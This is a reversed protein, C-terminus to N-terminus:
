LWKYQEFKACVSDASELVVALIDNKAAVEDFEEEDEEGGEGGDDDEREEGGEGGEEDGDEGGYYNDIMAQMAALSLQPHRNPRYPNMDDLNFETRIWEKVQDVTLRHYMLQYYVLINFYVGWKRIDDRIFMGSEWGFFELRRDGHNNILFISLYYEEWTTNMMDWFRKIKTMLQDRPTLFIANECLFMFSRAHQTTIFDFFNLHKVTVVYTALCLFQDSLLKDMPSYYHGYRDEDAYIDDGEGDGEEEEKDDTAADDKEEKTDKKKTDKNEGSSPTSDDTQSDSVSLGVPHYNPHSVLKLYGPTLGPLLQVTSEHFEGNISHNVYEWLDVTLQGDDVGALLQVTLSESLLLTGLNGPNIEAAALLRPYHEPAYKILHLPFVTFVKLDLQPFVSYAPDDAGRVYERFEAEVPGNDFITPEPNFYICEPDIFYEIQTFLEWREKTTMEAVLKTALTMSTRPRTWCLKIYDIRDDLSAGPQEAKYRKTRQYQEDSLKAQQEASVSASISSSSTPAQAQNPALVDTNWDAYEPTTPDLLACNAPTLIGAKTLWEVCRRSNYKIIDEILEPYGDAYHVGVLAKPLDSVDDACLCNRLRTAVKIYDRFEM